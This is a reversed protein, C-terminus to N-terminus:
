SLRLYHTVMKLSAFQRRFCSKVSPVVSGRREQTIEYREIMWFSVYRIQPLSVLYKNNVLFFKGPMVCFCVTNLRTLAPRHMKVFLLVTPSSIKGCQRLHVTHGCRCIGSTNLAAPEFAAIPVIPSIVHQKDPHVHEIVTDICYLFLAFECLRVPAFKPSSM